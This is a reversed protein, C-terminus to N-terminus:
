DDWDLVPWGRRRANIALTKGPCVARAEHAAELLPADTHHDAYARELEWNGPGLHADCWREVARCKEAGAVVPGDVRGTYRGRADREMRTAVFGDVGMRRAAVEAIPEFTASVLLVVLGQGHCRAVEALAQPRYRPALVEDHFRAMIADVDESTRGGLAGFVLERAEGQRFPLHLKYRVGWWALRALRAPSMMGQSFLYRTFLSGSQGDISTGDFDFVAVKQKRAGANPQM